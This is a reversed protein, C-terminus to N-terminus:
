DDHDYRDDWAAMSPLVSPGSHKQYVPHSIRKEYNAQSVLIKESHGFRSYDVTPSIPIESPIETENYLAVFKSGAIKADCETVTKEQEGKIIAEKHKRLINMSGNNYSYSSAFLPVDNLYLLFLQSSLQEKILIHVQGLTRLESFCYMIARFASVRDRCKLTRKTSHEQFHFVVYNLKSGVQFCKTKASGKVICDKEIGKLLPYSIAAAIAAHNYHQYYLNKVGLPRETEFVLEQTRQVRNHEVTNPNEVTMESLLTGLDSFDIFTQKSKEM